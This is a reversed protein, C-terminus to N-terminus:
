TAVPKALGIQLNDFDFAALVNTLFVDGLTWTLGAAATAAPQPQIGSRCLGTTANKSRIFNSPDIEYPVGNFVLSIKTKTDCPIWWINNSLSAGSIKGLITSVHDSDGYIITAGTDVLANSKLGLSSGDVQVDSMAITWSSNDVVKNYSISNSYENPVDGLTLYSPSNPSFRFSILAKNLINQAKMTQIVTPTNFSADPTFRLGMVGGGSYSRSGFVTVVGITQTISLGGLSVTDTAKYGQIQSGDGFNVSFNNPAPLMKYTTSKAPDYMNAGTCAADTCYVSPVWLNASGTDFIITFNQGGVFVSGVYRRDNQNVLKATGQPDRKLLSLLESDIESTYVKRLNIKTFGPNSTPSSNVIVCLLSIIIVFLTNM